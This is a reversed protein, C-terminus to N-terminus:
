CIYLNVKKKNHFIIYFFSNFLLIHYKLNFIQSESIHKHTLVSQLTRLGFSLEKENFSGPREQDKTENEKEKFHREM